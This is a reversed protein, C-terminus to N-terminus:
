EVSQIRTHSTLHTSFPQFSNKNSPQPFDITSCKFNRMIKFMKAAKSRLKLIFVSVALWQKVRQKHHDNLKQFWTAIMRHCLNSKFHLFTKSRHPFQRGHLRWIHCFNWALLNYVQHPVQNNIPKTMNNISAGINRTFNFNIQDFVKEVKEPKSLSTLFPVNQIKIRLVWMWRSGQQATHQVRTTPNCSSSRVQNTHHVPCAQVSYWSGTANSFPL